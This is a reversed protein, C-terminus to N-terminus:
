YIRKSTVETPHVRNARGAKTLTGTKDIVVTDVKELM